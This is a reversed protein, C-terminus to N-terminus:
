SNMLYTIRRHKVRDILEAMSVDLRGNFDSDMCRGMWENIKEDM